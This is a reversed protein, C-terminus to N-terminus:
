LGYSQMCGRFSEDQSEPTSADEQSNLVSVDDFSAIPELVQTDPDPLLDIVTKLQKLLPPCFISLRQTYIPLM